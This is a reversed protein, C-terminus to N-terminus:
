FIEFQPSPVVTVPLMYKVIRALLVVETLLELRDQLLAALNLSQKSDWLRIAALLPARISFQCFQFGEVQEVVM